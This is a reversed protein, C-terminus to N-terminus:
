DNTIRNVPPLNEHAKEKVEASTETPLPSFPQRDELTPSEVAVGYRAGRSDRQNDATAQFSGELEGVEPPILNPTFPGNSLDPPTYTLGWMEIFPVLGYSYYAAALAKDGTDVEMSLLKERLGDMYEGANEIKSPSADPNNFLGVNNFSSGFEKTEIQGPNFLPDATGQPFKQTKSM